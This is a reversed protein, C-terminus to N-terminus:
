TDSPELRVTHLGRDRLTRLLAPLVQLVVPQGDQM